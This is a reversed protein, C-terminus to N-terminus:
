AGGVLGLVREESVKFKLMQRFTYHSWTCMQRATRSNIKRAGKAVMRSTEFKPLLIVDYNSVLWKATKGHVDRVLDRVRQFIRLKATRLRRRKRAGVQTEKSHLVDAAHLLRVVRSMDKSGVELLRGAPDYGTQFTRVGPDLAIVSSPVPPIVDLATASVQYCVYVHTLRDQVIRLDHQMYLPLPEAARMRHRGDPGVGFLAAYMGRTRGWHEKQLLFSQTPDKRKSRFQYIAPLKTGALREKARHADMAKLLDAMADDRVDYPVDLAWAHGSARLPAENIFRARLEKKVM